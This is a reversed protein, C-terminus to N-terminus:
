FDYYYRVNALVAQILDFKSSFYSCGTVYDFKLSINNQREIDYCYNGSLKYTKIKFCNGNKSVVEFSQNVKDQVMTLNELLTEDESM